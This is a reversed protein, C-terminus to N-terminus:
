IPITITRKACLACSCIADTYICLILICLVYMHLQHKLKYTNAYAMIYIYALLETLYRPLGTHIYRYVYVIYMIYVICMHSIAYSKACICLVISRYVNVKVYTHREDMGNWLVYCKAQCMALVLCLLIVVVQFLCHCTFTFIIHM